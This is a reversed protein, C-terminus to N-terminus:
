IILPTGCFLVPEELMPCLGHATQGHGSHTVALPPLGTTAKEFLVVDYIFAKIDV